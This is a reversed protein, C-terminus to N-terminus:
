VAAGGRWIDYKHQSTKMSIYGATTGLPQYRELKIAQQPLRVCYYIFLFIKLFSSPPTSIYIEPQKSDHIYTCNFLEFIYREM